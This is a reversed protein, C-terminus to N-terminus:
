ARVAVCDFEIIRQHVDRCVTFFGSPHFGYTALIGIAESFNVMGKYM